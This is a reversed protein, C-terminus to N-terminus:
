GTAPSSAPFFDLGDRYLSLTGGGGGGGWCVGAWWSSHRLGQRPITFSYSESDIFVMNPSFVGFKFVWGMKSNGILIDAQNLQIFCNPSHFFSSTILGAPWLHLISNSSNNWLPSLPPVTPPPPPPLPSRQRLTLESPSGTLIRIEPSVGVHTEM